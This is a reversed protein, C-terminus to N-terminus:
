MGQLYIGRQYAETEKKLKDWSFWYQKIAKRTAEKKKDEYTQSEINEIEWRIYQEAEKNNAFGVVLRNNKRVAIGRFEMCNKCESCELPDKGFTEKMRERWAKPKIVRKANILLKGVEKQFHEVVRKMLAKTRRSYIGYHRIMKFQKDPIHRILRGIFEEVSLEEIKWQNDKKDQYRFAVVEGDYMVIRHLAIPGRKMYRGIYGLLSKLKTRSQKPANVYFGEANNKYAAQLLHQVQKKARNSLTRRILKLVVTQWQKRLKVFPIYDYNEWTGQNTVGGMTVLMHIHPNFELKSGFTHLATIVGAEIGRKQFYETILRAAEDMLGKLLKKRYRHNAFIPSLGQDITMVVHRHVSEYMDSAQVEAWKQAEGVACTPCFKGKCRIPYRKVNSCAECKFVRFGNSLDGCHLFKEVEEIVVPRIKRGHKKKFREWNDNHLFIAKLQNMQIHIENNKM